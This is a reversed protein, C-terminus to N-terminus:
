IFVIINIFSRKWKEIYIKDLFCMNRAIKLM